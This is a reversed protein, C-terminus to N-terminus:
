RRTRRERKVPRVPEANEAAAKEAARRAEEAAKTEVELQTELKAMLSKARIVDPHEPKLRLELGTLLMKTQALQQATTGGTPAGTSTDSPAQASSPAPTAPLVIEDEAEALLRELILRRDRDRAIAEALSQVRMQANQMAQMNVAVQTPLRGANKERFAQMRMETEELKKKSEALQSMLFQQTQIALANRDRANVDIFLGGLRETVRRATVPDKYQFRVYFSDADRAERNYVPDVKIQRLRMNEVVDQMPLRAREEPYLELDTILRELETRSLIQETLSTLRDITRMTVTSQVFSSPIRQPIVQILMDSEYVEPQRSSIVLGIYGGMLFPVVIVWKWRLAMAV